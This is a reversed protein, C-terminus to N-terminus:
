LTLKSFDSEGLTRLAKDTNVVYKQDEIRIIGAKTLNGIETSMTERTTGILNAIDQHTLRMDLLFEKDNLPKGFKLVLFQLIYLLKSQARSQELAHLHMTAGIYLSVARNLLATSVEQTSNIIDMLEPRSVRIIECDTLSDYYYLSVPARNFVWEIPLLAGETEYGVIKEEGASTINYIKIVGSKVYSAMTPVEGQYLLPRGKKISFWRYNKLSEALTEGPSEANPM